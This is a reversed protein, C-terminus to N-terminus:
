AGSVRPMLVPEAKMRAQLAKLLLEKKIEQYEADNWRNVMENPDKELDFLEGEDSNMDFALKYHKDIYTCVYFKTMQFRNEVLVHERLESKKGMLVDTQDIGTMTRPIDKGVIGLITPAIDVLSILAESRKGQPMKGKFSAVFPIKVADEYDFAGKGVLGHHGIFAGHDTTFIILTNDIQGNEELHDLIKGIYHDMMSVMGYYIAKNKQLKEKTWRHRAIGHVPYSPDGEQWISKDPNEERTIRYHLPMDSIDDNVTEPIDMDNPNYMSAWPEPILYPNHPDFFSAWLLFPKDGKKYQDLLAICREAIWADTHYKEPMAWSGYQGQPANGTPTRYWDKWQEGIQNQLWIIYHQGVHPEDAHNRALEVHNFGYFPGTFTKWFDLDQLIPYAEASPYQANGALPQFHAKGILATEYGYKSLCEGITLETEPLKTGLAYAGHQSPYRGTIISARAPTSVPNCTYAKDFIVGRQALRDLNPTQCKPDNYGVAMWHHQDSTILLINPANQSIPSDIQKGYYKQYVENLASEQAIILQPLIVATNLLLNKKNTM